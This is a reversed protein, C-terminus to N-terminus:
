EWKQVCSSLSLLDIIEARDWREVFEGVDEGTVDGRFSDGEEFCGLEDLLVLCTKVYNM